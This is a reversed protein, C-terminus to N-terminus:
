IELHFIVGTGASGLAYTHTLSDYAYVVSGVKTRTSGEDTDSLRDNTSDYYVSAFAAIDAEFYASYRYGGSGLLTITDGIAADESAIGVFNNVIVIQGSSVAVDATWPLDKYNFYRTVAM